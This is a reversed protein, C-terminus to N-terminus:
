VLSSETGLESTAPGVVIACRDIGVKSYYGRTIDRRLASRMALFCRESRCHHPALAVSTVSNFFTIPSLSLLSPEDPELNMAWDVDIRLAFCSACYLRGLPEDICLLTPHRRPYTLSPLRDSM